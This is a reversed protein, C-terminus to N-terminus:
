HEGQVFQENPRKGAAQKRGKGQRVARYMCWRERAGRCGGGQERRRGGGGGAHGQSWLPGCHLARGARDRPADCGGEQWQLCLRPSVSPFSTLTLSRLRAHYWPLMLLTEIERPAAVVKKGSCACALCFPLSLPLPLLACDHMISRALASRLSSLRAPCRSWRTAAALAPSTSRLPLFILTIVHAPASCLRLWTAPRRSWRTAM